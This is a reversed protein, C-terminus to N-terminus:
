RERSAIKSPKDVSRKHSRYNSFRPADAESSETKNRHSGFCPSEALESITIVAKVILVLGRQSEMSCAVGSSIKLQM